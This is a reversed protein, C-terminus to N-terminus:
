PTEERKGFMQSAEEIMAIVQEPTAEGTPEVDELFAEIPEAFLSVAIVYVPRTRYMDFSPPEPDDDFMGGGKRGPNRRGEQRMRSHLIIGIPPETPEPEGSWMSWKDVTLDHRHLLRHSKYYLSIAEAKVRVQTYDPLYDYKRVHKRKLNDRPQSKAWELLGQLDQELEKDSIESRRTLTTLAM